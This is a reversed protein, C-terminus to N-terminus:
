VAITKINIAATAAILTAKTGYEPIIRKPNDIIDAATGPISYLIGNIQPTFKKTVKPNMM